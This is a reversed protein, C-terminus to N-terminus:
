GLHQLRLDHRQGLHYLVREEAARREVHLGDVRLDLGDDFDAGLEIITKLLQTQRGLPDVVAEAAHDAVDRLAVPDFPGDEFRRWGADRRQSSTADDRTRSQCQNALSARLGHYRQIALPEAGNVDGDMA